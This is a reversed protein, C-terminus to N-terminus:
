SKQWLRHREVGAKERANPPDYQFAWKLGFRRIMETRADGPNEAKISVFGNAHEQGSGFTFIYEEKM